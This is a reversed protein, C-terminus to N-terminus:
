KRLSSSALTKKRKNRHPICIQDQIVGALSEGQGNIVSVSLNDRQIDIESSKEIQTSKNSINTVQISGSKDAKDVIDNKITKPPLFQKQPNKHNRNKTAQTYIINQPPLLHTSKNM